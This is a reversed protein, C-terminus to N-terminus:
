GVNPENTVMGHEDVAVRVRNTQFDRTWMTGPKMEVIHAGPFERAIQAFAADTGRTLTPVCFFCFAGSPFNKGRQMGKTEPFRTKQDAFCPILRAVFAVKRQLFLWLSLSSAEPPSPPCEVQEM